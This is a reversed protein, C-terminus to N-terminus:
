HIFVQGFIEKLCCALRNAYDDGGEIQRDTKLINGSVIHNNQKPNKSKCPIARLLVIVM